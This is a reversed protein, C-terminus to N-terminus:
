KGYKKFYETLTHFQEDSLENAIIENLARKQPEDGMSSFFDGMMESQDSPPLGGFLEFLLNKKGENDMGKDIADIVDVEIETVTSIKFDAM